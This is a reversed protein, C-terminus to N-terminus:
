RDKSCFDVFQAVTGDFIKKSGQHVKVNIRYDQQVTVRYSYEEGILAPAVMYIGGPGHEKKFHEIIQAALCGAGNAITRTENIGMGNVVVFPALFEALEKGHGSPYGDYQRYMTCLKENFGFANDVITTTSRTGM